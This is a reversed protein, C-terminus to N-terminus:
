WQLVEVCLFSDGFLVTAIGSGNDLGMPQPPREWESVRLPESPRLSFLYTGIAALTNWRSKAATILSRPCPNFTFCIEWVRCSFLRRKSRQSFHPATGSRFLIAGRGPNDSLKRSYRQGVNAPLSGCRDRRAPRSESVPNRRSSNGDPGGERPIASAPV